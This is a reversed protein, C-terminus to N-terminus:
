FGIPRFGVDVFDLSNIYMYAHSFVNQAFLTVASM